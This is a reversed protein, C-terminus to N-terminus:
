QNSKKWNKAKSKGVKHEFNVPTVYKGNHVIYKISGAHNGPYNRLLGLYLKGALGDCIIEIYEGSRNSLVFPSFDGISSAFRCTTSSPTSVSVLPFVSHQIVM